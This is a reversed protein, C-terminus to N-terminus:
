DFVKDFLKPLSPLVNLSCHYFAKVSLKSKEFLNERFPYKWGFVSNIFILMSIKISSNISM